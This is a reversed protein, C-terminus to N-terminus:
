ESEQFWCCESCDEIEENPNDMPCGDDDLIEPLLCFGKLM